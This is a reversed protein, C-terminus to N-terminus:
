FFKSALSVRTECRDRVECGNCKADEPRDPLRGEKIQQIRDRLRLVRSRDVSHIQVPRILSSRPYEVVGENIRIGYKEEVLMAYGAMQLRDKKWVGDRPAFGTRIISPIHGNAILRDLRDLRGSLGLRESRLDIEVESPLIQSIAYALGSAMGPILAEVEQVAQGLEQPNIADGYIITRLL